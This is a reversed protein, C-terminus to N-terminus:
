QFVIRFDEEDPNNPMDLYHPFDINEVYEINKSSSFSLEIVTPVIGNETKLYTYNNIHVHILKQDIKSIFNTMDNYNEFLHIDHFEFVMGTINKSIKIIDSLISYEDGDIDCKIFTGELIEISNFPIDKGVNKKVHKKDDIFFPHHVDTNDNSDFSLISCPNIQYFNKEFTIDEGVGFTLLHKTKLVDDKNVLYGGDNHKGLRILDECFFPKLIKPFFIKKLVIEQETKIDFLRHSYKKLM